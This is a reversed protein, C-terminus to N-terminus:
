ARYIGDDHTQRDTQRDTQTHRDCEPITDFRSFTPYRLYAVFLFHYATRGNLLLLQSLRLHIDLNNTSQLKKEISVLADRPGEAMVSSRTMHSLTVDTTCTGTTMVVSDRSRGGSIIYYNTTVHCNTCVFAGAVTLPWTMYCKHAVNLQSIHLAILRACRDSIIVRQSTDNALWSIKM